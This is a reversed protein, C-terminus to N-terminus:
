GRWTLRAAPERIMTEALSPDAGHLDVVGDDVVAGTRSTGNQGFTVLKM